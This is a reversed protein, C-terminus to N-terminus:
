NRGKELPYCQYVPASQWYDKTDVDMVTIPGKFAAGTDVNWVGARHMPTTEGLRTVPTHGIYIEQFLKLRAPYTPDDKSLNPDLACALEWLTRDWYVLNPYYEYQPGHLNTFGAHVYLRNQADLHYNVLQQYFKLHLEMETESLREYSERTAEGGNRLWLPNDDGHKLYQYALYDHNGRIFICHYQESFEMLYAVTQASESWGDVYDGLFIFTDEKKPLTQALVDELAKLGGHIDGVVLTRM